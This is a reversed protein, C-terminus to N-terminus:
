KEKNNNAIERLVRYTTTKSWPAPDVDLAAAMARGDITTKTQSKYSWAPVGDVTVMERDAIAIAIEADMQKLTKEDALVRAKLAKRKALTDALREGAVCMSDPDHNPWRAAIARATADSGDVPPPTQEIVMRWFEDARECMFRWDEPDQTIEYVEFRFGAFMVALWGRDLGTVGMQWRIQAVYAPPIEDWGFRGDTKAEFVGLAADIDADFGGDYVLGDLTARRHPHEPDRVMMQESAVHLGTRDHFEAAIVPEMRRGIRLRPTDEHDDPLLGVKRCWLSWPSDYSSLGLLVGVESAGIGNARETHWEATHTTPQGPRAGEGTAHEPTATSGSHEPAPHSPPTDAHPADAPVDQTTTVPRYFLSM